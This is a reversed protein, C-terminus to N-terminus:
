GKDRKGSSEPFYYKLIFHRQYEFSWHVDHVYRAASSVDGDMLYEVLRAHEEVSSLEWEKLWKEQRPFDYLRKKLTDVIRILQRNHSSCLFINHFDLNLAYFRDFQDKQLSGRMEDNLRLMQRVADGDLKSAALLLASQELAGIIQYFQGIEDLSLGKVYIGRRARITVFGEMELQILADRLPTRSIGLEQSTKELSIAMGPRLVQRHIQERLFDYVQEKLSKVNLPSAACM